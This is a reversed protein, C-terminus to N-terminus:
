FSVNEHSFVTFPVRFKKAHRSANAPTPTCGQGPHKSYRGHPPLVFIYRTGIKEGSCQCLMPLEAGNLGGCS